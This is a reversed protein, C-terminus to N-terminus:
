LGADRNMSSIGACTMSQRRVPEAVVCHALEAADRLRWVDAYIWLKPEPRPGSFVTGLRATPSLTSCALKPMPVTVATVPPPSFTRASTSKPEAPM